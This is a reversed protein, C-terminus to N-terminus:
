ASAASSPWSAFDELLAENGSTLVPNKASRHARVTGDADIFGALFALRQLRPCARVGLGPSAQHAVHRGPRQLELFSSSRPTGSGHAAPRRAALPVGPRVPGRGVRVIEDILGADRADVAIEVSPTLRRPTSTATAWTSASSGACITTPSGSASPPCPPRRAAEARGFEPLDTAVAVCIASGCAGRGSGLTRRLAARQAAPRREDRCCSSPTTPRLRRDHSCRGRLEFVEKDGSAASRRRGPRHRDRKTAEDLSFVEDGPELEKIARMGKTTWVETSGRLCEYQATVGALYKREAEPIGLKEYTAKMQEPLDDWEDVQGDTPKIYYYIDQFDIDPMNVAFWPAMPKREFTRLAKQRLQRMWEPEGKWWSM